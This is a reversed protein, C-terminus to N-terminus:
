EEVIYSGVFENTEGDAVWIIGNITPHYYFLFTM